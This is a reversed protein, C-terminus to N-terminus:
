IYAVAKPGMVRGNTRKLDKCTGGEPLLQDQLGNHISKSYPQTQICYKQIVSSVFSASNKKEKILPTVKSLDAVM